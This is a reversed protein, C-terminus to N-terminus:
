GDGKENRTVVVFGVIFGAILSISGLAILHWPTFGAQIAQDIWIPLTMTKEVTHLKRRYLIKSLLGDKIIVSIEVTSDPQYYYTSDKSFGKAIRKKLAALEKETKKLRAMSREPNLTSGNGISEKIEHVEVVLSDHDSMTDDFTETDIVPAIRTSDAKAPIEIFVPVEKYVTDMPMKVGKAEAMLIHKKAIRLHKAASTCGCVAAVILIYILKNM